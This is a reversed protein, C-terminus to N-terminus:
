RSVFGMNLIKGTTVWLLLVGHLDYHCAAGAEDAALRDPAQLSLAVGHLLCGAGAVVM